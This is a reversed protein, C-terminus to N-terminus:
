TLMPAVGLRTPEAGAAAPPLVLRSFYYRQRVRDRENPDLTSMYAADLDGNVLQQLWAAMFNRADARLADLRLSLASPTEKQLMSENWIVQWRRGPWEKNKSESGVATLVFDYDGEPTTIQYNRRVKYAGGKFEWDRAGQATVKAEP